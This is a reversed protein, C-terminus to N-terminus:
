PPLALARAGRRDYMRLTVTLIPFRLTRLTFRCVAEKIWAGLRGRTVGRPSGDAARHQIVGDRRGLSVCLGTDGFRFPRPATGHLVALLNDAACAAMPLATKCGMHLPAGVARLPASADGAGFLWPAGPVALYADVLMRGQADVALGAGAALPSAVFGGCWVTAGVPIRAGDVILAGAEVRDIAVHEHIAVTALAARVHAIAAPGLGGAGLGGRCYLAV